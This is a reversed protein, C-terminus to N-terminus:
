AFAAFAAAAFVSAATRMDGTPLKAAVSSIFVSRFCDIATVDRERSWDSFQFGDVAIPLVRLASRAAIFVACNQRVAEPREDLWAKLSDEDKIDDISITMSLRQSLRHIKYLFILEEDKCFYEHGIEHM